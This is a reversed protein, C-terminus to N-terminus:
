AVQAPGRRALRQQVWAPRSMWAVTAALLGLVLPIPAYAAEGIRLHTVAAGAMLLVLGAAAYPRLRPVLLGIAGAVEAAGVPFRFWSPYGWHVFEQDFRTGDSAKGDVLKGSGSMLFMLALLISLTWLVIPRARSARPTRDM